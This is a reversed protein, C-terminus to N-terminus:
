VVGRAVLLSDLMPFKKERYFDHLLRRLAKTDFDDLVIKKRDVQLM